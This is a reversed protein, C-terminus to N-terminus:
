NDPLCIYDLAGGALIEICISTAYCDADIECTQYCLFGAGEVDYCAGDFGFNAECDAHDFCSRTCFRGQTGAAPVTLAICVDDVDSCDDTDLCSAYTDDTFPDGPGGGGRTDACGTLMVAAVVLWRLM